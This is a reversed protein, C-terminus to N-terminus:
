PQPRSVARWRSGMTVKALGQITWVNTDGDTITDGTQPAAGSLSEDWLVWVMDDEELGVTESMLTMEDHNLGRRLAKVGTVPSGTPQPTLTVDEIGDIWQWDSAISDHMGM